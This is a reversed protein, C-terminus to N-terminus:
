SENWHKCEVILIPEGEQFIAYDVKEGKKLGVDAIFEPVVESPNFIDYGLLHFFPLVFATKTAEETGTQNKQQEVREALNKLQIQFEMEHKKLSNIHSRTGDFVAIETDKEVKM